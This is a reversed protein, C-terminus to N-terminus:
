LRGDQESIMRRFFAEEGIAEYARRMLERREDFSMERGQQDPTWRLLGDGFVVGFYPAYRFEEARGLMRPDRRSELYSFLQEGLRDRLGRRDLTEMVRGVQADIHEIEAYYEAIDDRVEGVDPMFPPVTVTASDIGLAAAVGPTYGRHPEFTGMWFSFPRTEDAADLFAEFNAAYDIDSMQLKEFRDGYPRNRIGNWPRGAPNVDRDILFGPAWGKGTAGVRYGRQELLETYTAFRAPLYGWLTTGEDLEFGNRGTLISARSPTCSPTSVFANEFVIGERALRDLNPTRVENSGYAGLHAWSLDDAIIFVINPSVTTIRVPEQGIGPAIRGFVLVSALLLLAFWGLKRSRVSNRLWPVLKSMAM